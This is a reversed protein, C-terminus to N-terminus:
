LVDLMAALSALAQPQVVAFPTGIQQAVREALAVDRKRAPDDPELVVTRTGAFLSVATAECWAGVVTRGRALVAEPGDLQAVGELALDPSGTVAVSAVGRLRYLLDTLDATSDGDFALVFDFEEEGPARGEEYPQYAANRMPVSVGAHGERFPRVISEVEAGSLQAVSESDLRCERAVGAYLPAKWPDALSLTRKPDLSRRKVLVRLFPIWYLLEGELGNSWPGVVQVDDERELQRQIRKLTVAAPAQPRRSAFPLARYMRVLLDGAVPLNRLFSKLRRV